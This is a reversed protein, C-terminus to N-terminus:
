HAFSLAPLATYTYPGGDLAVDATLAPLSGFPGPELLSLSITHDSYTILVGITPDAGHSDVAAAVGDVERADGTLPTPAEGLLPRLGLRAAYVRDLSDGPARGQFLLLA